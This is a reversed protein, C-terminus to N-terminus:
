TADSLPAKKIEELYEEVAWRLHPAFLQGFIEDRTIEAFSPDNKKHWNETIGNFIAFKVTTEADSTTKAM